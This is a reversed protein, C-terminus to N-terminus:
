RALAGKMGRPDELYWETPDLGSPPMVVSTRISPVHRLAQLLTYRFHLGGTYRTMERSGKTVKMEEGDNDPVIVVEECDRFLWRWSSEWANSGPIGVANFGLQHLIIADFEGETVYVIRSSTYKVGFVHQGGEVSVYKSGERRSTYGLNRTRFGRYQHRADYYPLVIHGEYYDHGPLPDLLVGLKWKMISSIKLGRDRLHDWAEAGRGNMEEILLQHYVDAPTRTRAV